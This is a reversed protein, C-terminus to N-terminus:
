IEIVSVLDQYYQFNRDASIVPIKEAYATALILRDFPDRHQEHLLITDYAAIHSTTIPLLGFGDRLIVEELEVISVPLEPLKGIKQKIAIEFFSIQSVYIANSSLLNITDASLKTPNTLAWILIQTDLLYRQM